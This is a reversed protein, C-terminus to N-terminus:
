KNAKQLQEYDKWMQEPDCKRQFIPTTYRTGASTTYNKEAWALGNSREASVVFEAVSKLQNETFCMSIPKM